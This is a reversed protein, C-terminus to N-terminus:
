TVSRRAHVGRQELRDAAAHGRQEGILMRLLLCCVALRVKTSKGLIITEIAAVASDIDNQYQEVSPSTNDLM